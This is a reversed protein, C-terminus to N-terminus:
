YLPPLDTQYITQPKGAASGNAYTALLQDPRLNFIEAPEGGEPTTLDSGYTRWLLLRKAQIPGNILLQDKCDDQTVTRATFKLGTAASCTQVADKAILWADVRKVNDNIIVKCDALLIIRPLESIDGYSTKKYTIDTNVTINGGVGAASCSGPGKKAWIVIDRAKFASFNEDLPAAPAPSQNIMVDKPNTGAANNAVYGAKDATPDNYPPTAFLENLRLDPAQTDIYNVNASGEISDFPNSLCDGAYDYNGTAPTNSFMLKQELNASSQAYAATGFGTISGTAFAGYEVWSGYHNPNVPPNLLSVGNSVGTTQIAAGVVQPACPTGGDTLRHRGVTLDGNLFQVKPSKVITTCSVNSYRWAPSGSHSPSGIVGVYCIKTGVPDTVNPPRTYSFTDTGYDFAQNGSAVPTPTCVFGSIGFGSMEGCDGSSGSKNKPIKNQADNINDTKFEIIRWATDRTNTHKRGGFENDAAAEGSLDGQDDQEPLTASVEIKVPDGQPTYDDPITTIDSSPKLHYYYPVFVDPATVSGSGTSSCNTNSINEYFGSNPSWQAYSKFTKGGDGPGISITRRQQGANIDLGATLTQSWSSVISAPASDNNVSDFAISATSEAAGSKGFAYYAGYNDGVWAATTEGGGSNKQTDAYAQVVWPQGSCINCSAGTCSGEVKLTVCAYSRPISGGTSTGPITQLEECYKDDTRSDGYRTSDAPDGLIKKAEPQSSNTTPNDPPSWPYKWEFKALSQTWDLSNYRPKYPDATGDYRIFHYNINSIHSPGAPATVHYLQGNKNTNGVRHSMRVNALASITRSTKVGYYTNWSICRNYSATNPTNNPTDYNATCPIGPYYGSPKPVAPVAPELVGITSYNITTNNELGWGNSNNPRCKLYFDGSDYPVYFIIRNGGTVNSFRMKYIHGQTHTFDASGYGQGGYAIGSIVSSGTSVDTIDASLGNIQGTRGTVPDSGPTYNQNNVFNSNIDQNENAVGRDTDNWEALQSAGNESCPPAFYFDIANGNSLNSPYIAVKPDVGPLTNGKNGAYGLKACEDCSFPFSAKFTPSRNNGVGPGPADIKVVSLELLGTYLTTEDDKHNSLGSAGLVGAPIQITTYRGSCSSSTPGRIPEEEGPRTFATAGNFGDENANMGQLRWSIKFNDCARESGVDREVYDLRVTRANSNIAYIKLTVKENVQEDAYPKSNGNIAPPKGGVMLSIYNSTESPIQDPISGLVTKIPGAFVSNSILFALLLAGAFAGALKQLNLGFNGAVQKM